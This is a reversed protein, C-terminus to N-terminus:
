RTEAYKSKSTETKNQYDSLTIVKVNAKREEATMTYGLVPFHFNVLETDEGSFRTSIFAPEFPVVRTKELQIDDHTNCFRKMLYMDDPEIVVPQSLWHVFSVIGSTKKIEEFQEQTISVFVYREILPTFSTRQRGYSSKVLKNVPYFSDIKKRRLLDCVKQELGPRTYVVYWQETREM